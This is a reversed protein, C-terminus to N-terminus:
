YFIKAIRSRKMAAPWGDKSWEVVIPLTMNRFAMSFWTPETRRGIHIAAWIFRSIKCEWYEPPGLIFRSLFEDGGFVSKGDEWGLLEVDAEGQDAGSQCHCVLTGEFCAQFM